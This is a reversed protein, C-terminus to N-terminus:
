RRVAIAEIEIKVDKPLRAVEVCSRAPFAANNETFFAEYVANVNNFENLDQIFVTTKVIDAVNLGAAEIIAQINALSQRTQAAVSEAVAGTQPDVPLQGSTIVLSGLDVGQVYPGIAAPACETSIIRSM